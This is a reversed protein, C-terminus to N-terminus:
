EKWKSMHGRSGVIIGIVSTLFPVFALAWNDAYEGVAVACLGVICGGVLPHFFRATEYKFKNSNM